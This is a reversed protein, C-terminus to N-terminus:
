ATNKLQEVATKLDLHGYDPDPFQAIASKLAVTADGIHKKSEAVRLWDSTARLLWLNAGQEEAVKIAEGVKMWAKRANSGHDFYASGIVRHVEALSWQEHGLEVMEYAAAEASEAETHRGNAHLSAAYYAWLIPTYIDTKTKKIIELSQKMMTESQTFQGLDYLYMAHIGLTHGRYAIMEREEAFADAM